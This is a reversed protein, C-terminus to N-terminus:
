KGLEEEEIGLGLLDLCFSINKKRLIWWKKNFTLTKM